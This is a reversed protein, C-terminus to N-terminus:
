LAYNYPSSVWDIFTMDNDAYCEIIKYQDYSDVELSDSEPYLTHEAIIADRESWIGNWETDELGNVFRGIYTNNYKIPV